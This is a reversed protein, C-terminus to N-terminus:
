FRLKHISPNMAYTAFLPSNICRAVGGIPESNWSSRGRTPKKLVMLPKRRAYLWYELSLMAYCLRAARHLQACQLTHIYYQALLLASGLWDDNSFVFRSAATRANCWFEARHAFGHIALTNSKSARRALEEIYQSTKDTKQRKRRRQRKSHVITSCICIYRGVILSQATHM